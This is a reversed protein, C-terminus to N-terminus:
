RPLNDRHVWLKGRAMWDQCGDCPGSVYPISRRNVYGARTLEREPVKRECVGCLAISKKLAILDALWGAMLRMRHRPKAQAADALQRPTRNRDLTILAPPM